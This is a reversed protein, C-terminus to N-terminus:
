KRPPIKLRRFYDKLVKKPNQTRSMSLKPSILEGGNKESYSKLNSAYKGCIADYAM